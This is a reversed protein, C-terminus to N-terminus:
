KHYMISLIEINWLPVKLMAANKAKGKGSLSPDSYKRSWLSASTYTGPIYLNMVIFKYHPWYRIKVGFSPKECRIRKLKNFSYKGTLYNWFMTIITIHRYKWFSFSWLAFIMEENCHLLYVTTDVLVRCAQTLTPTLAQFYYGSSWPPEPSYVENHQPSAVSIFIAWLEYQM